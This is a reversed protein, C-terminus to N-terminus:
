IGKLSDMMADLYEDLAFGEATDKFVPGVGYLEDPAWSSGIWAQWPGSGSVHHGWAKHSLTGFVSARITPNSGLLAISAASQSARPRLGRQALHGGPSSLGAVVPQGKSVVRESIKRHTGTLRRSLEPSAQRLARQLERLGTIRVSGVAM